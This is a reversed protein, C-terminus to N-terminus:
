LGLSGFGGGSEIFEYEVEIFRYELDDTNMYSLLAVRDKYWSVPSWAASTQNAELVTWALPIWLNEERNWYALQTDTGDSSVPYLNGRKDGFVSYGQGTTPLAPGGSRNISTTNALDREVMLFNPPDFIQLFMIADGTSWMMHRPGDAGVSTLIEASNNLTWTPPGDAYTYDFLWFDNSILGAVYFTPDDDQVTLGNGTHNFDIQLRTWAQDGLDERARYISYAGAATRKAVIFYASRLTPDSDNGIICGIYDDAGIKFACIDNLTQFGTSIGTSDIEFATDWTITGTAFLGRRIKNNGDAGFYIAWIQDDADIRMSSSNPAAGVTDHLDTIDSVTDTWTAGGDTSYQFEINDLVSNINAAILTGDSLRDLAKTPLNVQNATVTKILHSTAM